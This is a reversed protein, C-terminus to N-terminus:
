EGDGEQKIKEKAGQFLGDMKKCIGFLKEQYDLTQPAELAALFAHWIEEVEGITMVLDHIVKFPITVMSGNVVEDVTAMESDFLLLFTVSNITLFQLV